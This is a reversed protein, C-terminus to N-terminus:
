CQRAPPSVYVCGYYLWRCKGMWLKETMKDLVEEPIAGEIEPCWERKTGQVACEQLAHRLHPVNAIVNAIRLPRIIDVLATLDEERPFTFLFVQYGAPPPMLWVGMKTVIGFNSQTFIGDSYPGFGYPFLQWTNNGPLAGMGTRMVEGTPLVVEMGGAVTLMRQSTLDPPPCVAICESTTATPPTDSAGTSHIELCLAEELILCTSGCNRGRIGFQKTCDLTRSEPSWCPSVVKMM